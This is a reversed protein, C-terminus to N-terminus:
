TGIPCESADYSLWIQLVAYSTVVLCIHILANVWAMIVNKARLLAVYVRLTM